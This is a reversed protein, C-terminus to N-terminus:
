LTGAIAECLSPYSSAYKVTLSITDSALVTRGSDKPLPSLASSSVVATLRLHHAIAQTYRNQGTQTQFM